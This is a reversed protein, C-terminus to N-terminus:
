RSISLQRSQELFYDNLQRVRATRVSKKQRLGTSFLAETWDKKDIKENHKTDPFEIGVPTASNTREGCLCRATGFAAQGGGPRGTGQGGRGGQVAVAAVAKRRNELYLEM